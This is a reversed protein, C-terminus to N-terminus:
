KYVEEYNGGREHIIKESPTIYKTDDAAELVFTIFPNQKWIEKHLEQEKRAEHFELRAAFHKSAFKDHVQNFYSKHYLGGNWDRRVKVLFYM